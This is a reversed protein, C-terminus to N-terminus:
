ISICLNSIKEIQVDDVSLVLIAKGEKKLKELTFVLEEIGAFDLGSTPNSFIMFDGGFSLERQLILRQLMGGSLSKVKTSPKADIKAKKIFNVIQRYVM